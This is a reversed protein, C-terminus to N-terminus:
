YCCPFDNCVCFTLDLFARRVVSCGTFVRSCSFRRCEAVDTRHLVSRVVDSSAKGRMCVCFKCGVAARLAQVEQAKGGNHM